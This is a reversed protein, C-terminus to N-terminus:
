FKPGAKIKTGDDPPPMPLAPLLPITYTELSHASAGISKGLSVTGGTIRSQDSSVNADASVPWPTAVGMVRGSGLADNADKYTTGSIGLGASAGGVGTDTTVFPIHGQFSLVPRWTNTNFDMLVGLSVGVGASLPNLGGEATAGVSYVLAPGTAPPEPRPDRVTTGERVPSPEDLEIMPPEDLEIMPPEDLEIMPPEDPATPTPERGSPDVLDVPNNGAYAYLSADVPSAAVRDLDELYLPDPTWFEGRLPDYDRVGLRVVGLLEDWGGSAFDLAAALRPHTARVGFPSPLVPTEGESLLTGRGDTVLSRFHGQDIAGVVRGDVLLPLVLGADDLYGGALWAAVPRGDEVRALRQGADDHLYSWRRDGRAASALQGDPGYVLTLDDRRIVRGARDLDYRHAGVSAHSADRAVSREGDDDSISVLRGDPGYEYSARPTGGEDSRTLFGRAEHEYARRRSTGGFSVTEADTLGRADRSWTMGAVFGTGVQQYGNVRRTAPDRSWDVRQGDLLEVAALRGDADYRLTEVDVGDFRVRALRGTADLLNEQVLTSLERGEADLVRRRQSAVEGDDRYTFSEVVTRWGNITTSAELLKGDARYRMHRAYGAGSVSTLRGKQGAGADYEMTTSGVAGTSADLYTEGVVRGLGDHSTAVARVVHDDADYFHKQSLLGTAADYLYRVRGVGGRRVEAVRGHADYRREHVQGDPLTVGVLRGLADYRMTTVHGLADARWLVHGSEDVGSRTVYTGNETSTLVLAGDVLRREGRREHSVGVQELRQDLVPDDFGSSEHTSLLSAGAYLEAPSMAGPDTASAGRVYSQSRRQGPDPLTLGDMLWGQPLRTASALRTGAPTALEVSESASDATHRTLVRIQAPLGAGAYRYSVSELPAAESAGGQDDWGRVMRELGDYRFSSTVAAGGHDEGLSLVADTLPDHRGTQEVGDPGVLALLRGTGVEWTATTVAGTSSTLTAVRHEDNYSIRQMTFPTGDGLSRVATLGGLADREFAAAYRFDLSADAHSGREVVGSELCSLDDPRGAVHALTKEVELVGHRTTTRTTTACLEGTFAVSESSSALEGTGDLRRWGSQRALPRWWRLDHFRHEEFSARTFKMTDPTLADTTTTGTVIGAVQDDHHFDVDEALQAGIRRTHAFGLLTRALSHAVPSAYDYDWSTEPQGTVALDLHTLLTPRAPLGPAADARGWGFRVVTGKGDDVRVLLGNSPSTFALAQAHRERVVVIESEGRGSLDVALPLGPEFGLNRLARVDRQVFSQGDNTYLLVYHSYSLTLDLLGDKNADLWTVSFGSLDTLRRGDAGVVSFRLADSRFSGHGLGLWVAFINSARGVLDAVGDGNVDEVWAESAAFRPSLAQRVPAAFALTDGAGHNMLVDVSGLNLRVLDPVLDHDLDALRTLPGPAYSGDLTTESLPLGARDCVVFRTHGSESRAGLVRWPAAGPGLRLFSRPPNALGPDRRCLREEHGTPAPLSEATWTSGSPSKRWSTMSDAHELETVGDDDLDVFAAKESSIANSGYAALVGDLEPLPLFAGDALLGTLDYDYHVPPEAAGSAFVRQLESLYFAPGTVGEAYRLTWRWRLTMVSTDVHRVSFRVESVRRDLSQRAGTRYDDFPMLVTGYVLELQYEKAAQVGRGGWRVKSLFARGTGNRTWELQNRDGELTVVDSLNWAYTGSTTTVADAARFSWVTGDPQLASWSGAGAPDFSLRVISSLGQPYYNGDDGKRLTGWPSTFLDSAYDIEGVERFRRIALESQWGLGWETQGADASYGPFISVLLPGRESPLDMPLPLHFAGRSLDAPGLELQALSGAMSGRAPAALTPAQVLSDDFPAAAALASFLALGLTPAIIIILLKRM